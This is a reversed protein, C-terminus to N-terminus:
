SGEVPEAIAPAREAESGSSATGREDEEYLTAYVGRQRMLADHTGTEIIEGARLVIIQDADKVTGLRHAIVLIVADQHRAHIAEYVARETVNDLASTAEDFILVQPRRVIARAIAVRQCQGGSLRLGRDGVVTDYGQPLTQIFEHLQAVQAAWIVDAEPM